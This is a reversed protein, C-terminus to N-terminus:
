DDTQLRSRFEESFLMQAGRVVVTLGGPPAPVVYGGAPAPWDTAIEHRAFTKTGTRVYTWAVGEGWVIGAQPIAVGVRTGGGPIVGAIRMGPLLGGAAPATFLFSLGQLRPDAKPAASVFHLAVRTGDDLTVFSDQPMQTLRQGPRLTLQILRDQQTVLRTYLGTADTIAPGLTNGWSQAATLALTRVDSEAAAVQAQDVHFSAEAAQLQAASINHQDRYLTRARDFETKAAALRAQAIRLQARARAYANALAALPQPDLVSGDVPLQAQYPAPTLRLTEVGDTRQDRPDLVVVREGHETVVREPPAVPQDQEADRAAESRGEVFSWGLLGAAAAVAIAVALMPAPRIPMRGTM